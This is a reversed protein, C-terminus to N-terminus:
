LQEQEHGDDEREVLHEALRGQEPAPGGLAASETYRRRAMGNAHTSKKGRRKGGLQKPGPACCNSMAAM